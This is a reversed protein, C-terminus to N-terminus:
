NSALARIERNDQIREITEEMLDQTALAFASAIADSGAGCGGTDAEASRQAGESFGSVRAGAADRVEVGMRITSDARAKAAWFGTLWGLFADARDIDFVLVGTIGQESMSTPSPVSNLIRIDEFAIDMTDEISQILGSRLDVEYSWGSCIYEGSEFTSAINGPNIVVGWSGPIEDQNAAYSTVAPM